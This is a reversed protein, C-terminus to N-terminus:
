QTIQVYLIFLRLFHAQKIVLSALVWVVWLLLIIM